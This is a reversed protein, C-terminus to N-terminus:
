LVSGVEDENQPYERASRAKYYQDLAILAEGFIAEGYIWVDDLAREQAESM